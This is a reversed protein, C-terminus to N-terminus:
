IVVETSFYARLCRRPGIKAGLEHDLAELLRAAVTYDSAVFRAVGIHLLFIQYLSTGHWRLLTLLDQKPSPSFILATTAAIAKFTDETWDGTTSTAISYKYHPTGEQSLSTSAQVRLVTTFKWRSKFKDLRRDSNVARSPVLRISIQGLLDSRRLLEYLHRRAQVWHGLPVGYGDYAVAIKYGTGTGWYVTRSVWWACTFLVFFMVSFPVTLSFHGARGICPLTIDETFFQSAYVSLTGSLTAILFFAWRFDVLRELYHFDPRM